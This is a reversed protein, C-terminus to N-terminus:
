GNTAVREFPVNNPIRYRSYIDYMRKEMSRVESRNNTRKYSLWRSYYSDFRSQDDNSLRQSGAPYNQWLMFQGSPNQIDALSYSSFLLSFSLIVLLLLAPKIPRM